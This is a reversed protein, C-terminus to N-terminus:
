PKEGSEDTIDAAAQRIAAALARRQARTATVIADVLAAIQEADRPTLWLNPPVGGGTGYVNIESSADASGLHVPAVIVREPIGDAGPVEIRVNTGRHVVRGPGDASHDRTCWPPCPHGSSNQRPGQDERM